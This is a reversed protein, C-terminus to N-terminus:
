HAWHSAIQRLVVVQRAGLPPATLPPPDGTRCPRAALEQVQIPREVVVAGKGSRATACWRSWTPGHNGRGATRAVELLKFAM